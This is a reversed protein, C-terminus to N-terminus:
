HNTEGAFASVSFACYLAQLWQIISPALFLCHRSQTLLRCITLISFQWSQALLPFTWWKATGCAKGIEFWFHLPM